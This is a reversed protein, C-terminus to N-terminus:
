KVLKFTSTTGNRSVKVLYIGSSLNATISARHYGSIYTSEHQAMLTGRLDFVSIAVSASRSLDFSVEIKGDAFVVEVPLEDTANVVGTATPVEYVEWNDIYGTGSRFSVGSTTGLTAGTTFSFDVDQWKNSTAVEHYIDASAGDWGYVAMGVPSSNPVLACDDVLMAKIVKVANILATYQVAESGLNTIEEKQNIGYPWYHQSDGSITGGTITKMLNNAVTGTWAGNVMRSWYANSTGSGFYHAMEHIATGVWMYRTNSGFGISGYYSAQATPIGADYYVYINASFPTYRNFLACASDMATKILQYAVPNAGADMALNYTVNGPNQKFVKAKVRYTTNPKLVGTLDKTITGPNTVKGSRVGCFSYAPDLNVTRTGSGTFTSLSNLQPDAILNVASPYLPTYCDANQYAVVPIQKTIDGSTFTIAGNVPQTGTYIVVVPVGAANAALVTKDLEIGEPASITIEQTLNVGRVTISTSNSYDDLQVSAKSTSVGPVAYLEWNDIYGILGTSMGCNNFFAVGSTPASGTTFSADFDTWQGNTNPVLINYDGSAGGVNANQVGMNFSGDLTKVKARFRYTTSPLWTISNSSVSGGNPWCSATGAVKVSRSGCYVESGTVLSVNGWSGSLSNMFPDPILNAINAYLPTFCESNKSAKVPMQQEVDGSKLVIQGNVPTTGDYTVTVTVSSANAVLSTPSATIGTPTTINIGDTLNAGTVTFTSSTLVEDYSVSAVSTNISSSAEAGQQFLFLVESASLAKNYISYKHTLGRWTPDGTYGSKCLFANAASVGSLANTGSLSASGVLAGDLYMSIQAADVVCVMHHLLGDDVKGLTRNVGTETSWPNSTNGTSIAVRCNGGNSPSAYVYNTGMWGSVDANGFYALITNGPNQGSASTFWIETSLASYGNVGITAAPFSMYGGSTTNLAKNTLAAAGVLTGNATGVM